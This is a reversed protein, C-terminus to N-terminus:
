TRVYLPPILPQFKMKIEKDDHRCLILPRRVQLKGKRCERQELVMLFNRALLLLSSVGIRKARKYRKM